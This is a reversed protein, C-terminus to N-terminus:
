FEEGSQWGGAAARGPKTGKILEVIVSPDHLGFLEGLRSKGQDRQEGEGRREADGHRDRKGADRHQKGRRSVGIFPTQQELAARPHGFGPQHEGFGL